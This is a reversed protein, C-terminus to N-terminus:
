MLRSIACPGLRAGTSSVPANRRCDSKRRAPAPVCMAAFLHRRVMSHYRGTIQAPASRCRRRWTRSGRRSRDRCRCGTETRACRLRARGSSASSRATRPRCRSRAPARRRRSARHRERAGIRHDHRREIQRHDDHQQRQHEAADREFEAGDRAALGPPVDGEGDARREGGERLAHDEASKISPM